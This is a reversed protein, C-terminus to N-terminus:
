YFSFIYPLTRKFCVNWSVVVLLCIIGEHLGKQSRKKQTPIKQPPVLADKYTEELEWWVPYYTNAELGSPLPQTKNIKENGTSPVITPMTFLNLLCVISPPSCYFTVRHTRLLYCVSNLEWFWPLVKLYICNSVCIHVCGDMYM